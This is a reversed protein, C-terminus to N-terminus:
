EVRARGLSRLLDEHFEFWVNHVSDVTPASVFETRDQDVKALAEDFREQYRAFRADHTAFTALVPSLRGVLKDIRDVVKSDYEADSHDNAVTRDGLPVLQWDSMVKLFASNIPEFKDASALVAPDERMPAYLTAAEAVLADTAVDTPLFSDGIDVVLGAAALDSVVHAIERGARGTAREVAELTAMKKLVVANLVDYQDKTLDVTM